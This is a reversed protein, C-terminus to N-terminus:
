YLEESFLTGRRSLEDFDVNAQNLDIVLNKAEDRTLFNGMNDIFGDETQMGLREEGVIDAMAHMWKDWHRAGTLVIGSDFKIAACVVFRKRM